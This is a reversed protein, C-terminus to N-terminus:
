GAHVQQLFASVRESWLEPASAALAGHGAGRFEVKEKRGALAEFLADSQEVTVRPDNEGHLLLCPVRVLRAYEVPNHSFGNFGMQVGGWFVLLEAGPFAPLGMSSFRNRVTSLLRDFPSELIMADVAVTGVAAGRLIAVAGLSAGYLVVKSGPWEQRAFAIASAVDDAERIGLTTGTGSSEGAGRFDILLVSFQMRHLAAAEYLLSEKSGGYGPFMVVLGLSEAVPVHWAALQEDGGGVAITRATYDLGQDRPTTGNRPRPVTVGLFVVAIKERLTMAEPKTTRTGTDSYHTMARAHMWSIVNVAVFMLGILILM